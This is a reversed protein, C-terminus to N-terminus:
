IFTTVNPMLYGKTLLAAELKERHISPISEILQSASIPGDITLENENNFEIQSIMVLRNDQLAFVRINSAENWYVQEGCVQIKSHVTEIPLSQLKELLKTSFDIELVQNAIRITTTQKKVFREMLSELDLELADRVPIKIEELSDFYNTVDLNSIFDSAQKKTDFWKQYTTTQREAFASFEELLKDAEEMAFKFDDTHLLDSDSKTTSDFYGLDDEVSHILGHRPGSISDELFQATRGMHRCLQNFGHKYSLYDPTKINSQIDATLQDIHATESFSSGLRNMREVAHEIYFQISNMLNEKNREEYDLQKQCGDILERLRSEIQPLKNQYASPLVKYPNNFSRMETSFGPINSNSRAIEHDLETTVYHNLQSELLENVKSLNPDQGLLLRDETSINCKKLEALMVECLLSKKQEESLTWKVESLVTFISAASARHNLLGRLEQLKKPRPKQGELWGNIRSQNVNLERAIEARQIGRNELTEIMDVANDLNIKTNEM